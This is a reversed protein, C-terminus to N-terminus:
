IQFNEANFNVFNPLFFIKKSEFVLNRLRIQVRSTPVLLRQYIQLFGNIRSTDSIYNAELITIQSDTSGITAYSMTNTKTPANWPRILKYKPLIACFRASHFVHGDRIRQRFIMWQSFVPGKLAGDSPYHRARPLHFRQIHILTDFKGAGAGTWLSNMRRKGAM